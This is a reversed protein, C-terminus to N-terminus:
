RMSEASNSTTIREDVPAYGYHELSWSDLGSSTLQVVRIANTGIDLALFSGLGKIIAM